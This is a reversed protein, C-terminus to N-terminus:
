WARVVAQARQELVRVARLVQAAAEADSGTPRFPDGVVIAARRRIRANGGARRELGWSAVPVVRAGGVRALWAVGPTAAAESGPRPIGGEPYIVVTDGGRLAQVAARAAAAREWRQPGVCIYGGQRFAWGIVPKRMAEAVVLFRGRHGQRYLTVVLVAPDLYSVHNAAVLLPREAPLRGEVRLDVLLALAPRMLAVVLGYLPERRRRSLPSGM